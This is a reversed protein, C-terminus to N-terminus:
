AQIRLRICRYDGNLVHKKLLSRASFDGKLQSQWIIIFQQQELNAKTNDDLNTNINAKNKQNDASLKVRYQHKLVYAYGDFEGRTNIAEQIDINCFLRDLPDHGKDDSFFQWLAQNSPTKLSTSPRWGTQYKACLIPIDLTNNLLFQEHCKANISAILPQIQKSQSQNNVLLRQALLEGLASIMQNDSAQNLSLLYHSNKGSQTKKHEIVTYKLVIEQQFDLSTDHQYFWLYIDKETAKITELPTKIVCGNANLDLATVEIGIKLKGRNSMGLPDYSFVRCKSKGEVQPEDFFSDNVLNIKQVEAISIKSHSKGQEQSNMMARHRKKAKDNLENYILVSFIGNNNKIGDLFLTKSIEDLYHCVNQHKIPQCDDFFARFDMVLACPTALRKIEMKILFRKSTITNPALKAILTDLKPHKAYSILSLIITKFQSLDASLKAAM